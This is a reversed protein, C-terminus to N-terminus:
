RDQLIPFGHVEGPRPGPSITRQIESPNENSTNTGYGSLNTHQKQGYIPVYKQKKFMCVCPESILHKLSQQLKKRNDYEKTDTIQIAGLIGYKWSGNSSQWQVEKFDM